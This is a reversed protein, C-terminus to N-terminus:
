KTRFGFAKKYANPTMGYHKKFLEYFHSTSLFGLNYSIEEVSHINEKLLRAAFELRVQTQFNNITTGTQKKFKRIITTTSYSYHKYIEHVPTTLYTYNRINEIIDNVVSDSVAHENTNNQSLLFLVNHTFLKINNAEDKKNTLLNALKKLYTYSDDDLKMYICGKEDLLRNEFSFNQMLVQFYSPEFLITFHVSQSPPVIFQHTSNLNFLLLYGESIEHIYGDCNHQITGNTVLTIEYFDTHKHLLTDSNSWLYDYGPHSTQHSYQMKFLKENTQTM